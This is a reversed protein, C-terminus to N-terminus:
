GGGVPPFLGVRDGDKIESELYARAANIFYLTVDEEPIGLKGLLSQVTEGQDIPYEDSNEPLFQVLTAFLKLEIKM